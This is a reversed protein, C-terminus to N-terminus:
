VLAAFAAGRRRLAPDLTPLAARGRGPAGDPWAVVGRGAREPSVLPTEVGVIPPFQDNREYRLSRKPASSGRVGAREGLLPLLKSRRGLLRWVRITEWPHCVPERERLSLTLTLPFSARRKIAGSPDSVADLSVDFRITSPSSRPSTTRKLLRCIRSSWNASTISTRRRMSSSKSRRPIGSCADRWCTM